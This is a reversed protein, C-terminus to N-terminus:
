AQSWHLCSHHLGAATDTYGLTVLLLLWGIVSPVVAGEAVVMCCGAADHLLLSPGPSLAGCLRRQQRRARRRAVVCFQRAHNRPAARAAHRDHAHDRPPGPRLVVVRQVARVDTRVAAQARCLCLPDPVESAKSRQAPVGPTCCDAFGPLILTLAGLWTLNLNLLALSHKLCDTIFEGDHMCHCLVRPQSACWVESSRQVLTYCAVAAAAIVNSM